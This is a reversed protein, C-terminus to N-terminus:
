PEEPTIELLAMLGAISDAYRAAITAEPRYQIQTLEDEYGM